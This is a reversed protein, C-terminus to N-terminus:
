PALIAPNQHSGEEQSASPWKKSDECPLSLSSMVRTDRRILASIKNMLAGSKHGLCREFAESRSVMVNLILAEAYSNPPSM